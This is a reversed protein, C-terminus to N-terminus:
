KRTKKRPVKQIKTPVKKQIKTVVEKKPRGRKKKAPPVEEKKEEEVTPSKKVRKILVIREEEVKKEIRPKEVKGAIPKWQNENPEALTGFPWDGANSIRGVRIDFDTLRLGEARLARMIRQRFESADNAHGTTSFMGEAIYLIDPM